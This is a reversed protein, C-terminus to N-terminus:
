FVANTEVATSNTWTISASLGTKEYAANNFSEEPIQKLGGVFNEPKQKGKSAAFKLATSLLTKDIKVPLIVAGRVFVPLSGCLFEMLPGTKGIPYLALGVTDKSAVEGLKTVGLTGELTKTLIEGPAMSQSTCKETGHVCNTFKLSMAAVTRQPGYEGQGSEGTCSVKTSELASQLIVSGSTLKTTFPLKYFAETEWEYEGAPLGTPSERKILCTNASFLGEFIKNTGEERPAVKVCKGYEPPNITTAGGYRPDSMQEITPSTGSAEAEVKICAPSGEIYTQRKVEQWEGLGGNASSNFWRLVKRGNLECDKFEIKTFSSEASRYVELYKGSNGLLPPGGPNTGFQGVTIAGTGGSAEAKIEGVSAKAPEESKSTSGTASETLTTLTEDAGHETRAATAVTLRYHYVTDLSLGTVLASVAVPSSGKPTSSCAKSSGYSTTTGYEFKCETVEEGQPNVTGNLQAKGTTFETASSTQVARYFPWVSGSGAGDGIGGVMATGGDQSLAVSFGFDAPNSTGTGTFKPERSWTSGSRTFVWAAGINTKDVYAGVLGTNGDGSLAVAFGFEGEGVEGEGTLKKGQQTWTSGSRTFAWAAGVSSNDGWGGVLATNGDSSLAVAAGFEGTTGTEEGGGTLKAGQQTFKSGSRTFVWAAGAASHDARGGILATIGDASLAVSGGFETTGSGGTAVLKSGLQTWAEGSRTFVWAAGIFENGDSRGGILATNGDGSLAASGGFEGEGAEGSGTLKPGQTWTEGSRTFVWAAGVNTKDASAGILATNGDASLAVASGFHKSGVTLKEGQQTWTSGSRTFVWVAGEQTSLGDFPGGVLATNGDASLAVSSGRNPAGSSGSGTLKTGQQVFPDIRLPYRAGRADVRLLLSAGDLELWSRLAHGRADSASLGSYRLVTKGARRFAVSRKNKALTATANSSLALSLTLPGTTAGAPAHTLTFGQELGLPGNAYWESLGGRIYLVRNARASPTSATVPTLSSDFGVARLALRLNAAGVSVSVGSAGFSTSLHQAPNAARLTGATTEAVRYAASDSGLAASIPGRAALPLSLLGQSVLARHNVATARGVSRSGTALTSLAAGLTVSLLAALLLGQWPVRAEIARLPATALSPRPGCAESTPVPTLGM